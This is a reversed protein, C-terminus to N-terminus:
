ESKTEVPAAMKMAHGGFQNRLASSAKAAFDGEGRSSFRAFLAAALAPTPVAADIAEKMTWRGEGTDDVYPEVDELRPSEKFARELLELLWSRIVSGGNWLHAIEELDFDPYDPDNALLNFGEAYSQMIGYEVANHVAKVRHGSGVPGMRGWRAEGALAKLVPELYTIAEQEGGVMLPYGYQHGWVGGSVGCDVFRVGRAAFREARAISDRFNSNGGDVVIDGPRALEQLKDLTLELPKLQLMMWFVRPEPEEPLTPILEDLSKATAGPVFPDVGLVELGAEGLRLAMGAGMKGLGIMVVREAQKTM